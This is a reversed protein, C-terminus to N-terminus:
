IPIGIRRAFDILQFILREDRSGARAVAHDARTPPVHLRGPETVIPVLFHSTLISPNFPKQYQENARWKM